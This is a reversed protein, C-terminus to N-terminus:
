PTWPSHKLELVEGSKFRLILYFTHISLESSDEDRLFDYVYAAREIEGNKLFSQIPNLLASFTSESRAFIREVNAAKLFFVEKCNGRCYEKNLTARNLKLKNPVSRVKRVPPYGDFSDEQWASIIKKFERSESDPIRIAAQDVIVFMEARKGARTQFFGGADDSEQNMQALSSRAVAQFVSLLEGFLISEHESNEFVFEVVDAVCYPSEEETLVPNANPSWDGCEAMQELVVESAYEVLRDLPYSLRQSPAEAFASSSTLFLLTFVLRLNM